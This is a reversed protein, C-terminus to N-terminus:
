EVDHLLGAKIAEVADDDPWGLRYHSVLLAMAFIPIALFSVLTSDDREFQVIHPYRDLRMCGELSQPQGHASRSATRYVAVYLGRVTRIEKPGSAPQSRFGRLRPAWYTDVEAAQEILPPLESAARARTLESESLFGAGYAEADTHLKGMERRADDAWWELRPEPDISIWTFLVM